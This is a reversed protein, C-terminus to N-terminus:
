VCINKETFSFTIYHLILIFIIKMTRSDRAPDVCMHLYKECQCDFSKDPTSYLFHHSFEWIKITLHAPSMYSIMNEISDM